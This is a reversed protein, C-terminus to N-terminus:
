LDLIAKMNRVGPEKGNSFSHSFNKWTLIACPCIKGVDPNQLFKWWGMKHCKLHGNAHIKNLHVLRMVNLYIKHSLVVHPNDNLDSHLPYSSSELFIRDIFYIRLSTIFTCGTITQDQKERVMMKISLAQKITPLNMYKASAKGDNKAPDHLFIRQKHAHM